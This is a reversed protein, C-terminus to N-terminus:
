ACGDFFMTNYGPTETLSRSFIIPPIGISM